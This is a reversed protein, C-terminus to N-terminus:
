IDLWIRLLFLELSSEPLNSWVSLLWIRSMVFLLKDWCWFWSDLDWFLFRTNSFGKYVFCIALLVSGAVSDLVFSSMSTANFSPLPIWGFLTRVSRADLEYPRMVSVECLLLSLLGLRNSSKVLLSVERSCRPREYENGLLGGLDTLNSMFFLTNWM